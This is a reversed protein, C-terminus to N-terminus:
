YTTYKLKNRENLQFGIPVFKLHLFSPPLQCIHRRSPGFLEMRLFYVHACFLYLGLPNNIIVRVCGALFAPVVCVSLCSVVQKKKEKEQKVISGATTTPM